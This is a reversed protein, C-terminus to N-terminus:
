ENFRDDSRHQTVQTVKKTLWGIEVQSRNDFEPVYPKIDLLPTGDIIDIDSIHLVRGDIGELRVISLGIPNPRRPSRTAFVGRACNDLFPSTQLAFGESRHFQYLLILHSFGDLDLLGPTFEPLIEIIGKIGSAGTPQIPMGILEKYPSRILGIPNLILYNM